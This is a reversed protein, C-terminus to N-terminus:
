RIVVDGAGSRKILVMPRNIRLPGGPLPPPLDTVAYTGPLMQIEVMPSVVQLALWLGFPGVRPYALTGWQHDPTGSPSVFYPMPSHLRTDVCDEDEVCNNAIFTYGQRVGDDFYDDDQFLCSTSCIGQWGGPYLRGLRNHEATWPAPSGGADCGGEVPVVISNLFFYAEQDSDGDISIVFNRGRRVLEQVSPWVSSDDWYFDAYKYIREEGVAAFIQNKILEQYGSPWEDYCEFGTGSTVRNLYIFTVKQSWTVSRAIEAMAAAFSQSGVLDACHHEVIIQGNEYHLDLELLWNNYDDIQDDMDRSLQFSNHTAKFQQQWIPVEGPRLTTEPCYGNWSPNPCQASALPLGAATCMAVVVPLVSIRNTRGRQATNHKFNTFRM